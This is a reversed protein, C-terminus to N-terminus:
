STTTAAQAPAPAPASLSLGLATVCAALMGAARATLRTTM